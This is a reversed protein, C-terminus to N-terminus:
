CSRVSSPGLTTALTPADVDGRSRGLSSSPGRPPSPGSSSRNSKCAGGGGRGWGGGGCLYSPLCACAPTTRVCMCPARMGTAEERKCVMGGEGEGEAMGVSAHLSKTGSTLNKPCIPGRYFKVWKKGSEKPSSQGNFNCSSHYLEASLEGTM